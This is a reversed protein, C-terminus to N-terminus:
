RRYRPKSICIVLGEIQRLGEVSLSCFSQQTALQRPTSRAQVLASRSIQRTAMSWSERTRFPKQSGIKSLKQIRLQKMDAREVLPLALSM